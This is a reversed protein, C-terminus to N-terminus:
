CQRGPVNKGPKAGPEPLVEAMMAVAEAVREKVELAAALLLAPSQGAAWVEAEEQAAAVGLPLVRGVEDEPAAHVWAYLVFARADDRAMPQGQMVLEYVPCGVQQLRILSLMSLPRFMGVKGRVVGAAMLGLAVDDRSKDTDM